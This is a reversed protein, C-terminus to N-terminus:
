TPSLVNKVAGFQSRTWLLQQTEIAGSQKMYAKSYAVDGDKYGPGVYVSSNKYHPVYKVGDLIYVDHLEREIAEKM